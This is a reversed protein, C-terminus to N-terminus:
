LSGHGSDRFFPPLLGGFDLSPYCTSDLPDLILFFLAQPYVLVSGFYRPIQEPGFKGCHM